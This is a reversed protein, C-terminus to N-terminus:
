LPANLVFKVACRPRKNSDDIIFYDPTDILYNVIRYASIESRFGLHCHISSPAIQQHSRLYMVAFLGSAVLENSPKFSILQNNDFRPRVTKHNAVLIFKSTGAFLAQSTVFVCRIHICIIRVSYLM